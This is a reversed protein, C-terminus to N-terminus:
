NCKATDNQCIGNQQNDNQCIGNQYNNNTSIGNQRTENKHINQRRDLCINRSCGETSHWQASYFLEYIVTRIVTTRGFAMRSNDNLCIDNQQTVNRHLVILLIVSILIFHRLEYIVTEIVTMRSNTTDNQCIDNQQTMRRGDANVSLIIYHWQEYSVTQIITMWSFAAQSLTPAGLWSSVIM